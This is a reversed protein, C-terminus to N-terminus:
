GTVRMVFVSCECSLVYLMMRLTLCNIHYIFEDHHSSLTTVFTTVKFSLDVKDSVYLSTPRFREFRSNSNIVNSVV